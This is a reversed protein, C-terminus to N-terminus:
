TIGELYANDKGNNSIQKGLALLKEIIREQCLDYTCEAM